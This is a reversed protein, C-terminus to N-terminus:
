PPGKAAWALATVAWAAQAPLSAPEYRAPKPPLGVEDLWRRWCTLCLFFAFCDIEGRRACCKCLKM